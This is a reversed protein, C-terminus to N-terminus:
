PLMNTNLRCNLCFPRTAKLDENFIFDQGQAIKYSNGETLISHVLSATTLLDTRRRHCM